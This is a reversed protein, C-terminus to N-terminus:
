SEGHLKGLTCFFELNSTAPKPETPINNAQAFVKFDALHQQLERALKQEAAQVKSLQKATEIREERAIVLHSTIRELTALHKGVQDVKSLNM